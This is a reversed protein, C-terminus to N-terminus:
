LMTTTTLIDIISQKLHEIGELEKGTKADMGKMYKEHSKSLVQM